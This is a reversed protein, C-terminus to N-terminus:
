AAAPSIHGHEWDVTQFACGDIDLLVRVQALIEELTHRLWVESSASHEIGPETGAGNMHRGYGPTTAPQRPKDPRARWM